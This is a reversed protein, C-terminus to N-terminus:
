HGAARGGMHVSSLAGLAEIMTEREYGVPVVPDYSAQKLGLPSVRSSRGGHDQLGSGAAPGPRWPSAEHQPPSAYVQNTGSDRIFANNLYQVTGATSGEGHISIYSGRRLRNSGAAPAAGGDAASVRYVYPQQPAPAQGHAGNAGRPILRGDAVPASIRRTDHQNSSNTPLLGRRRSAAGTDTVTKRM